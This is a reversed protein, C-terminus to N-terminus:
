LLRIIFGIVLYPPLNNHAAGGGANQMSVGTAAGGIFVGTGAGNISVNANAGAISIGTGAAGTNGIAPAFGAGPALNAGGQLGTVVGGHAHGADNVGHTHPSQSVGHTHGPDGVGHVHGPDNVIHAHAPMEASSLVHTAEGGLEGMPSGGGYCLPVRGFMNPLNFTTTGDGSGFSTGIVSFLIPYDSRKVADGSCWWWGNPPSAGAWMVIQGILTGSSAVADANTKVQADILDLDSNLKDGWTTSSAHVEPKVWNYNKTVTDAM